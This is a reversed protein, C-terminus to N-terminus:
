LGSTQRSNCLLPVFDSWPSALGLSQPQATGFPLLTRPPRSAEALDRHAECRESPAAPQKCDPLKMLVAAAQATM